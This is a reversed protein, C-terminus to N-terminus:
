IKIIYNVFCILTVVIYKFKRNMENFVRTLNIVNSNKDINLEM